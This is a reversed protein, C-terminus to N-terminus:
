WEAPQQNPAVSSKRGQQPSIQVAADEALTKDNEAPMKLRQTYKETGEQRLLYTSWQPPQVLLRGPTTLM